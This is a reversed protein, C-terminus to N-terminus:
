LRVEEKIDFDIRYEKSTLIFGKGRPVNVAKNHWFSMFVGSFM